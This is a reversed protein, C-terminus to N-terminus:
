DIPRPYFDRIEVGEPKETTEDLLKQCNNCGRRYTGTGHHYIWYNWPEHGTAPAGEEPYMWTGCHICHEYTTGSEECTPEAGVVRNGDRKHNWTDIYEEKYTDGCSCSYQKVGTTNCLAETIITETYSHEHPTPTPEPTPTPTETPEPTPTPTETPEPTPTPTETPEPTLTETPIKGQLSVESETVNTETGNTNDTFTEKGGCGVLVLSTMALVFFLTKRMTEKM